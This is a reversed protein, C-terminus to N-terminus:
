DPFREIHLDGCRGVYSVQRGTLWVTYGVCGAQQSLRKFEPYLVTGQQAGAIAARIGESSFMGAIPQDPRDFSLEVVEDAPLYYTARGARYDVQYSQVGVSLLQGIVQGFHLRGENSAAFTDEILTRANPTARNIEATEATKSIETTM